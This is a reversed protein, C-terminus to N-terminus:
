KGADGTAQQWSLVTELDGVLEKGKDTLWSCRITCGHEIYGERDIQRVAKIVTELQALQDNRRTAHDNVPKGDPNVCAEDPLAACYPCGRDVPQATEPPEDVGPCHCVGRM